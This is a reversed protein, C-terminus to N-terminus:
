GGDVPEGDIDIFVTAEDGTDARKVWIASAVSGTDNNLGQWVGGTPTRDRRSRAEERKYEQFGDGLLAGVVEDPRAVWAREPAAWTIKGDRRLENLRNLEHM